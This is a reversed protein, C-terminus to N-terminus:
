ADTEDDRCGTFLAVGLELLGYTALTLAGLPVLRILPTSYQNSFDVFSRGALQSFAYGFIFLVFAFMLSRIAGRTSARNGNLADAFFMTPGLLLAFGFLALNFKIALAVGALFVLMAPFSFDLFYRM